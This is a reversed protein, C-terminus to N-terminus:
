RSLPRHPELTWLDLGFAGCKEPLDQRGLQQFEPVEKTQSQGHEISLGPETPELDAAAGFSSCWTGVLRLRLGNVAVLGSADVAEFDSGRLRRLDRLAVDDWRENHAGSVFWASGNDVLIMGYAQLARAVVLAEPSFGGLDADARLRFRGIVGSV